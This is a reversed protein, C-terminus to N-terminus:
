AAQLISPERVSSVRGVLACHDSVGGHMTVDSVTIGNTSFMGDVMFALPGARHLNPDISTTYSLPVNDRYRQALRGFIEGGRPANFDGCLVFDGLRETEKLMALLATRQFDSARGDETWPFHTTVIRHTSDEKAIDAILLNFDQSVSKTEADTNDFYIHGADHLMYPRVDSKTIPFRSLIANGHRALIGERKHLRMLAFRSETEKGLAESLYPLDDEYVEQLCVVDPQEESLFAFVEPLHKKGEINLSILRISV